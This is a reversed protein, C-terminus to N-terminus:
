VQLMDEPNFAGRDDALRWSTVDTAKGFAVGVIVYSYWPWAHQRDFESPRAVGNPHSHYVGIVDLGQRAAEEEAALWAEPAILFRRHREDQKANAVARAHAVEKAEGAPDARGLLVGCAEEPFAAEGHARM